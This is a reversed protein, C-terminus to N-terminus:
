GKFLFTSTQLTKKKKKEQQCLLSSSLFYNLAHIGLLDNKELKDSSRLLNSDHNSSNLNM